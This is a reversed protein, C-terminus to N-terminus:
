RKDRHETLNVKKLLAEIREKRETGSLGSLIALYEMAEGVKMSPYM